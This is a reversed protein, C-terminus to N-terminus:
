PAHEDCVERKTAVDPQEDAAVIGSQSRPVARSPPPAPSVWAM